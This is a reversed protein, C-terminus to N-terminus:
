AAGPALDERPWWSSPCAFSPAEGLGQSPRVKSQRLKLNSINTGLVVFCVFFVSKKFVHPLIKLVQFSFYMFEYM